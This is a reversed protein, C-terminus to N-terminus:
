FCSTTSRDLHSSQYWVHLFDVRFSSPHLWIYRRRSEPGRLFGYAYCFRLPVRPHSKGVVSKPSPPHPATILLRIELATFVSIDSQWGSSSLKDQQLIWILLTALWSWARCAAGEKMGDWGVGFWTWLGRECWFGAFSNASVEVTLLAELSAPLKGLSLSELDDSPSKFGQSTSIGPEAGTEM